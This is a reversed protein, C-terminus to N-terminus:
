SSKSRRTERARLAAIEELLDDRLSVIRGAALDELGARVDDGALVARDRLLRMVDALLRRDDAHQRLLDVAHKVAALSLVDVHAPAADPVQELVGAEIWSRVTPQPIGLM